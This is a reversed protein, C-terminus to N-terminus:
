PTVTVGDAAIWPLIINAGGPCQRAKGGAGVMEELVRGLNGGMMLPQRVGLVEGNRVEFPMTTNVSFDLTSRNATHAGMVDHVVIGRDVEAVLDELDGVSPLYLAVNSVGGEPQTRWGSGGGRVASATAEVGYHNATYTDYLFGQLVGDEVLVNRRSPVGEDDARGSSLGGPMTPDDVITLSSTAVPQGEKGTFASEGRQAADGIVSPVLTSELLESLAAPRFIVTMEGGKELPVAGQANLAMRAAEEGITTADLDKSRSSGFEFGTSVTSDRLVVYSYVTMSTGHSAISVGESNSIAVSGHGFAVLGGGVTVGEHVSRSADVLEGAMEVAEAPEMDVLARDDLGAISRYPGAAAPLVYGTEPALRSLDLARRGAEDLRALDSTYAFGLRGDKVVRLGTGAESDTTTYTVVDKEVQVSVSTGTAVYAEACDAGMAMLRAVADEAMGLLAQPEDLDTL